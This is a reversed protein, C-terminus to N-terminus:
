VADAGKDLEKGKTCDGENKIRLQLRALSPEGCGPYYKREAQAILPVGCCGHVSLVRMDDGFYRSDFGEHALQLLEKWVTSLNQLQRKSRVEIVRTKQPHLGVIM